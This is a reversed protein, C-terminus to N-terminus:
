RDRDRPPSAPMRPLSASSSSRRPRWQPLADLSLRQRRAKAVQGLHGDRGHQGIIKNAVEHTLADSKTAVVTLTANRMKPSMFRLINSCNSNLAFEVAVCTSSARRRQTERIREIGPSDDVLRCTACFEFPLMLPFRLAPRSEAHERRAPWPMADPQAIVAIACHTSM